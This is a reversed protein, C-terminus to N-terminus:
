IIEELVLNYVEMILPDLNNPITLDLPTDPPIVAVLRFKEAGQHRLWEIGKAKADHHTAVTMQLMTATLSAKDYIFSDFTPQGPAPQYYGSELNINQGILYRHHALPIFTATQPLGRRAIKVLDGDGGYGLRMYSKANQNRSKFHTNVPGKNKTLPTVLWEGGKCFLDHVDDLIYGASARTYSNRVFIQYLKAAEQLTTIHLHDRLMKYIYRTPITIMHITRDDQPSVLLIHHSVINEATGLSAASLVDSITDFSLKWIEDMVMKEYVSLYRHAFNYAMRASPAYRSYFKELDAESCPEKTNQLTRGMILESLLWNKMYYTISVHDYKKRWEIPDSRPSAVQILFTGLLALFPPVSTVSRNSDVLCWYQSSIAKNFHLRGSPQLGLGTDGFNVEYLGDANFVYCNGPEFHYITPCGALVRLFLVILLWLSKGIGPHGLLTVAGIISSQQTVQLYPNKFDQTGTSSEHLPPPLGNDAAFNWVDNLAQCYDDRILVNSVTLKLEKQLDDPLAFILCTAPVNIDDSARDNGTQRPVPRQQFLSSGESDWKGYKTWLTYLSNDNRVKTIGKTDPLM